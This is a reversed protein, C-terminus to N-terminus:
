SCRLVIQDGDDLFGAVVDAYRVGRKRCRRAPPTAYDDAWAWVVLNFSM